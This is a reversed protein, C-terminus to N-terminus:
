FGTLKPFHSSRAKTRHLQYAGVTSINTPHGMKISQHSLAKAIESASASDEVAITKVFMSLFPQRVGRHPTRRKPKVKGLYQQLGLILRKGSNDETL